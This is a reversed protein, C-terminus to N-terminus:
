GFVHIGRSAMLVVARDFVEKATIATMCRHDIPCDRLMCPACDPPRRIIEATLSMPYTTLPNTPGFVVLTPTNLAAGVHAPGTDNTVLVDALSIIAMAEGVTTEGTLTLLSSKAAASVQRSVAVEAPSGILAVTAGHQTLSDALEAYKEAPWRKARSNVSGPCLVALPKGAPWGAQILIERAAAKREASVTLDFRPETETTSLSDCLARQLEAVINLYYFSEHRQNAWVPVPVENTLLGRRRDTDYGIRIPVRALFATAAAAFANQLLVALDFRRQRWQRANTIAGLIGRSTEIIEDSFDADMFVDATGAPAALTIRADPFVQRLERLAPVSMVADGVWNPTRVVIRKIETSQKNV